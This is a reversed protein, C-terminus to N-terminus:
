RAEGADARGGDIADEARKSAGLIRVLRVLGAVTTEPLDFSPMSGKGMTIAQAIQADTVSRQWTSDSLNRANVMASQPGDGRGLPGHCRVCANQWTMLIVNGIGALRDGGTRRPQESGSAQVAERSSATSEATHDHDSPRWPRLDEPGQNCAVALTAVALITVGRPM